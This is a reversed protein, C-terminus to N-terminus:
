NTTIPVLRKPKEWVKPNISLCFLICLNMKKGPDIGSEDNVTILSAFATSNSSPPLVAQLIFHPLFIKAKKYRKVKFGDRFLKDVTPFGMEEAVEQRTSGGLGEYLM